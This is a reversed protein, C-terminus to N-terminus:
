DYITGTGKVTVSKKASTKTGVLDVQIPYRGTAKARVKWTVPSQRSTANPALQPVSQTKEGEVVEFDEPLKIAVKEGAAPDSVLATVTFEEGKAVSKNLTLSLKGSSTLDGLGYAFGVVRKSGDTGKAKLVKEAWYMTVASDSRNGAKMSLYPVEWMTKHGRAKGGLTHHPWAGLTVRTPAEIQTKEYEGGVKLSVRAITGPNNPNPNELAQIFDPVPAPQAPNRPNMTKEDAGMGSPDFNMQTDVLTTQGPILFPVGDNTGIFTDLLFRIGVQHPKSDENEIVYLVLVTDLLRMQEKKGKVVVESPEDSPVVEVIQTVKIHEDPYTYVSKKGIREGWEKPKGLKVDRAQWMGKPPSGFMTEDADIRLVTNNSTGEPFFTLCKKKTPNEPRPPNSPDPEDPLFIGFRMCNPGLSKDEQQNIILPRDLFMVDVKPEKYVPALDEGVDVVKKGWIADRGVMLLLMLILVIAPILHVGSSTGQKQRPRVGPEIMVPMVPAMPPPGPPRGPAIPTPFVPQLIPEQVIPSQVVQIDQIIPSVAQPQDLIIPQQYPRYQGGITLTVPVVFRQNGNSTITVKAQLVEGPRDPVSPISVGIVATRGNLQAREVVLWPQDSFGHAFVPRKEQSKVELTHRLANGVNGQFAIFKENIDVKPPATLGLAEFFQQVAGLGAASPGQVPYTWGNSKYWDAVAGREFLVAAEKPAAKAKEAIQRPSKAGALVGGTFPRVPV